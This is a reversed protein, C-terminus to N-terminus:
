DLLDFTIPATNVANAILLDRKSVWVAAFPAPDREFHLALHAALGYQLALAGAAPFDPPSSVVVDDPKQIYSSVLGPAQTPIPWLYVKGDVDEYFHTPYTGTASRNPIAQWAVRQLGTLPTKNGNADTRFLMLDSWYDTPAQVYSPTGGSWTVASDVVNLNPWAYGHIPLEKLVANLTRVALAYDNGNPTEGAGLVNLLSLADLVIERATMSWATAM